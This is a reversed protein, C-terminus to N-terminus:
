VNEDASAGVGRNSYAGDIKGISNLPEIPM